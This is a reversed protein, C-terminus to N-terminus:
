GIYSDFHETVYSDFHETVYSGFLLCVGGWGMYLIDANGNKWFVIYTLDLRYVM